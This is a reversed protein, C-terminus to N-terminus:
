KLEGELGWLSPGGSKQLGAPVSPPSPPAGRPQVWQWPRFQLWPYSLAPVPEWTAMLLHPTSQHLHTSNSTNVEVHQPQSSSDGLLVDRIPPLDQAARGPHKCGTSLVPPLCLTCSSNAPLLTNVSPLKSSLQESSLCRFKERMVEPEQDKEYLLPLPLQWVSHEDRM